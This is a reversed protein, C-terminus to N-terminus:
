ATKGTELGIKEQIQRIMEEDPLESIKKLGEERSMCGERVLGAIEFAYPHFGYQKLHVQNAFSNLLCNTSNPDTDSPSRWGLKEIEEAIMDERYEHFALPHIAYLFAKEPDTSQPALLERYHRENLIYPRIGEGMLRGTTRVMAEQMQRVMPENLKLVSSAIPAQGPSWGYAIFPIGMEIATKLVSSKVLNMCTNCIVSARELAKMPYVDTEISARFANRLAPGAPSMVIHDVALADTMCRM